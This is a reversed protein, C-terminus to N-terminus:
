SGPHVAIFGLLETPHGPANKLNLEEEQLFVSFGSTSINRQRSIIAQPDKFTQPQSFVVPSKDFFNPSFAINSWQHNVWQKGAQIRVGDAMIHSGKEMLLYALKEEKHSGDLYDWEELQYTVRERAVHAFRIHAPQKGFRSQLQMIMIPEQYRSTKYKLRTFADGNLQKLSLTGAEGIVAGNTNTMIVGDEIGLYGITENLHRLEDDKSQEEEMRMSFTERTVNHLRVDVPNAGNFSQTAALVVPTKTFMASPHRVTKWELSSSHLTTGTHLTLIKPIFIRKATGMLFPDGGIAHGQDTVNSAVAAIDHFKGDRLSEPYRWYFGHNQHGGCLAAVGAERAHGAITSGILDHSNPKKDFFLIELAQNYNNPDCAWGYTFDASILDNYGKPLHQEAPFVPKIHVKGLGDGKDEFELKTTWVDRGCFGYAQCATADLHHHVMYHDQGKPGLVVTGHGFAHNQSPILFRGVLRRPNEFYLDEVTRAAVWFYHYFPSDWHSGNMLLYVYNGHRFLHAGENIGFTSDGRGRQPQGFRDRDMALMEGCRPCASRLRSLTTSDQANGAFITPVQTNCAVNYNDNADLEVIATHQGYNRAEWETTAPLNTDWSYSMWWRNTRTDHFVDSDLRIIDICGKGQCNASVTTLSHPIVERITSNCNARPGAPRPQDPQHSPAFPGTPIKSFAVYVGGQGGQPCPTQPTAYQNASFTLMYNDPTKVIQPAAMHCYHKGNIELSHGQISPRGFLGPTALTWKELDFSQYVPFDGENSTTYILYYVVRGDNQVDRLVHPDPSNGTIVPNNIAATSPFCFCILLVLLTFHALRTIYLSKM